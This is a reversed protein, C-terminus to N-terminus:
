KCGGSFYGTPPSLGLTPCPSQARPKLWHTTKPFGGSRLIAPACSLRIGGEKLGLPGRLSSSGPRAPRLLPPHLEPAVAKAIPTVHVGHQPVDGDHYVSPLFHTGPLQTEATHLTPSFAGGPVHPSPAASFSTFASAGEASVQVTPLLMSVMGGGPPSGIHHSGRLIWLSFRRQRCPNPHDMRHQGCM